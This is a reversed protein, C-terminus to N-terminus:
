SSWLPFQQEVISAICDAAERAGAYQAAAAQLRAAAKRYELGHLVTRVAQRLQEPTLGIREQTLTTFEGQLWKQRVLRFGGPDPSLVQAAGSAELRRGNAEQESHFPIVVSPVGYRVTEMMTGYGGHFVVCRSRAIVSPGPVWPHYHLNGPVDHPRQSAFRESTSVVIEWATGGFAANFLGFLERRVPDAGGGVTVYVLPRDPPLDEFCSAPGTAEAGEEADQRTLAGVYRTHPVGDPLPDLEPISPVLLLDGTLLDEAREIPVLGWDSLVPNFVPRVDPSVLGAPLPQWWVLRPAAPHAVSKVIQVVPLGALRGVLSTLPWTDGVLVDPKFRRVLALEAEVRQRVVRPSHFGDRVIQFNMDSFLTYAAPRSSGRSLWGAFRGVIAILPRRPRLVLQNAAEVRDVHQGELVFATRWGRRNMEEALALCRGIHGFGGGRYSPFFLVSSM